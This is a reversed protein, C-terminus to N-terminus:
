PERAMLFFVKSHPHSAVMSFVDWFVSSSHSGRIECPLILCLKSRVDAQRLVRMEVRRSSSSRAGRRFMSSSRGTVERKKGMQRLVLRDQKNKIESELCNLHYKTESQRGKKYGSTLYVSLVFM